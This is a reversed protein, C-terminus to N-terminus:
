RLWRPDETSFEILLIVVVIMAGVGSTAAFKTIRPSNIALSPACYLRNLGIHHVHHLMQNRDCVRECERGKGSVITNQEHTLRSDRMDVWSM